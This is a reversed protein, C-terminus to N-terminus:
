QPREVEGLEIVKTQGMALGRSETLGEDCHESCALAEGMPEGILQRLAEEYV